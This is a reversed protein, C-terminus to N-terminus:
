TIAIVTGVPVATNLTGAAITADRIQRGRSVILSQMEATTSRWPFTFTEVAPYDERSQPNPTIADDYFGVTITVNEGSPAFTSITKAKAAM